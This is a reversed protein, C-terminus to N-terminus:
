ALIASLNGNKLVKSSLFVAPHCFEILCLRLRLYTWWVLERLDNEEESRDESQVPFDPTSHTPSSISVSARLFINTRTFLSSL